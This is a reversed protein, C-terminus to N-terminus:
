ETTLNKTMKLFDSAQKNLKDTKESTSNEILTKVHLVARELTFIDKDKISPDLLQYVWNNRKQAGEPDSQDKITKLLKQATESLFKAKTDFSRYASALTTAENSEKKTKLMLDYIEKVNSENFTVTPQNYKQSEAHALLSGKEDHKKVNSPTMEIESDVTQYRKAPITVQHEKCFRLLEGKTLLTNDFFADFQYLKHNILQDNPINKTKLILKKRNVTIQHAPDAGLAEQFNARIQQCAKQNQQRTKETSLWRFMWSKVIGPVQFSCFTEPIPICTKIDVYTGNLENDGIFGIPSSHDFHDADFIRQVISTPAIINFYQDQRKNSSNTLDSTKEENVGTHSTNSSHDSREKSSDSDNEEKGKVPEYGKAKSSRWFMMLPATEQEPKDLLKADDNDLGPM